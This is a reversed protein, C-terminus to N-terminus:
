VFARAVEIAQKALAGDASLGRAEAPRMRQVAVRAWQGAPGRVVNPADDPGFAWSQGSPSTLELRLQDLPAPMERRARRFGHPLARYGIHCVHRIRDTDVPERGVAAFCDLGHAWTEMLRATIFSDFSMPGAGWLVKPDGPTSRFTERLAAANARWDALLDAPAMPLRSQLLMLSVAHGDRLGASQERIARLRSPDGAASATGVWDFYALHAVQHRVQWGRAPTPLDWQDDSLSVLLEDLVAHEAELEAVLGDSRASV